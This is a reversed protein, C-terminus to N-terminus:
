SRWRIPGNAAGWASGILAVVAQMPLGFGFTTWLYSIPDMVGGEIRGVLWVGLGAAVIMGIAIGMAIRSAQDRRLPVTGLVASTSGTRADRPLPVAGIAVLVGIAVSSLGSVLFTGATSALVGLILTLVSAGIAAVLVAAGVAGIIVRRELLNSSPGDTRAAGPESTTTGRYRESPARHLQRRSGQVVGPPREGPEAPLGPGPAPEAAPDADHPTM